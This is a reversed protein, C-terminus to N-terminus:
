IAILYKLKQLKGLRRLEMNAITSEPVVRVKTVRFARALLILQAAGFISSLTSLPCLCTAEPAAWDLNTLEGGFFIDARMIAPKGLERM